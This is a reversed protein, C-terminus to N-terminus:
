RAERRQKAMRERIDGLTLVPNQPHNIEGTLEGFVYDYDVYAIVRYFVKRFFLGGGPHMISFGKTAGVFSFSELPDNPNTSYVVIYGDPALPEGHINQTVPQWSILNDWNSTVAVQVNQPALPPLYSIEFTNASTRESANGYADVGRVKIRCHPYATEPLTWVYPLSDPLDSALPDYTAGGNTSLWLEIGNGTPNNDAFTWLIDRADEIYWVEGGNPSLLSLEPVQTDLIGSESVSYGSVGQLSAILFMVLGLSIFVKM